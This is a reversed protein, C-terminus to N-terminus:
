KKALIGNRRMRDIMEDPSTQKQLATIVDQAVYHSGKGAMGRKELPIDCGEHTCVGRRCGNVILRKIDNENKHTGESHCPQYSM